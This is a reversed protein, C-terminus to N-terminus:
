AAEKAEEPKRMGKVNGLTGQAQALRSRANDLATTARELLFAHAAEWTDHYADDESQKMRRREVPVKRGDIRWPYEQAWVAKETERTCEVRKIETDYFRSTKWKILVDQEGEECHLGPV